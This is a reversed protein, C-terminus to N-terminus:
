NKQKKIRRNNQLEEAKKIEAFPEVFLAFKEKYGFESLYKDCFDMIFASQAIPCKKMLKGIGFEDEKKGTMKATIQKIDRLEIGVLVQIWNRGYKNPILGMRAYREYEVKKFAKSRQVKAIRKELEVRGKATKDTYPPIELVMDWPSAATMPNSYNMTNKENVFAYAKDYPKEMNEIMQETSKHNPFKEYEEAICKCVEGVSVNPYKGRASGYIERMIMQYAGLDYFMYDAFPMNVINKLMKEAANKESVSYNKVAKIRTELSVPTYRYRM